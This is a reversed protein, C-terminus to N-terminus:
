DAEGMVAYELSVIGTKYVKHGVQRTGDLLNGSQRRSDVDSGGKGPKAQRVAGPVERPRHAKWGLARWPGGRAGPNEPSRFRSLSRNWSSLTILLIEYRTTRNITRNATGPRAASRMM